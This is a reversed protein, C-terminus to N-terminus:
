GHDRDRISELYSQSHECAVNAITSNKDFALESFLMENQSMFDKFSKTM